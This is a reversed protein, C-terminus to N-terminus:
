RAVSEYAGGNNHNLEMMELLVQNDSKPAADIVAGMLSAFSSTSSKKEYFVIDGNFKEKVLDKYEEYRCIGDILGNNLAQKATYSRGDALVLVEDKTMHRGNAVNTVFIDFMEDIQSQEIAIQEDTFEQGLSGMGKNKGSKIMVERVGYEEFLGSLEYFSTYVGIAGTTVMRNAYIEDASMSIDYAASCAISDFYAYIPRETDEKYKMLELYLDDGAFASGGGSNVYLLIGKNNNDKAMDKVAKILAAHDYGGSMRTNVNSTTSYTVTGEIKLIGIYDKSPAGAYPSSKKGANNVANGLVASIVGMLGVAVFLLAAIIMSIIQKKKM